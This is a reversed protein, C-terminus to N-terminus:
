TWSLARGTRKRENAPRSYRGAFKSRRRMAPGYKFLFFPAPALLVALCGIITMVWHVGLNGYWPRSVLNITGSAWYRFFTIIALASGAYIGDLPQMNPTQRPSFDLPPQYKCVDLIYQYVAVYIGAWCISFLTVAGLDSWPSISSYNTWGLWFLSIPLLPAVPVALWLRYEPEPLDRGPINQGTYKEDGNAMEIQVIKRKYLKYYVPVSLTWISVGTLIAAFCTGVLGKSFDYTDGFIFSMGQLFGYVVIYVLILWFGLLPVIPERTLMHFSRLLAARLRKFVSDQRDFESVYRNDGTVRRLHEAKWHLLIPSFTEPLFLLTFLLIVGSIILAIRDTWRWNIDSQAIWAGVLPSLAPGYFSALAIAPWAVTREVVSFLDAVSAAHIALIISGGLGALFRFVCQGGFNPALAAGLM